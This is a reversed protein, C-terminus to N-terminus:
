TVFSIWDNEGRFDSDNLKLSSKNASAMVFQKNLQFGIFNWLEFSFCNPSFLKCYNENDWECTSLSIENFPNIPLSSTSIFTMELVVWWYPYEPQQRYTHFSRLIFLNKEFKFIADSFRRLSFKKGLEDRSTTSNFFKKDNRNFCNLCLKTAKMVIMLSKKVRCNRKWRANIHRVGDLIERLGKETLIRIESVNETQNEDRLSKLTFSKFKERDATRLSTRLEGSSM